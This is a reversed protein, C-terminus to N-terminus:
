RRPCPPPVRFGFIVFVFSFVSLESVFFFFCCFLFLCVYFFIFFFIFSFLLDFLLMWVDFVCLVYFLVVVDVFIMWCSGVSVLLDFFLM